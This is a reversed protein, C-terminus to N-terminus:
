GGERLRARLAKKDYKGTSTRPVADLFVVGDPIWWRPFRGALSGLLEGPDPQAGPRPVVCAVPREGWKADPVAVM